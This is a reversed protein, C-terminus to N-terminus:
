LVISSSQYRTSSSFGFIRSEFHRFTYKVNVVECFTSLLCVLDRTSVAFVAEISATKKRHISLCDKVKIKLLLYAHDFM